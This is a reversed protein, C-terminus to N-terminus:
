DKYFICKEYREQGDLCWLQLSASDCVMRSSELPKVKECNCFKENFSVFPCRNEPRSENWLTQILNNM